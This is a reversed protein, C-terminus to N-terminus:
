TKQCPFSVTRISCIVSSRGLHDGLIPRCAHYSTHSVGTFYFGVVLSSHLFFSFIPSYMLIHCCKIDMSIKKRKIWCSCLLFLLFNQQLTWSSLFSSQYVQINVNFSLNLFCYVICFILSAEVCCSVILVKSEKIAISLFRQINKKKPMKRRYFKINFQTLHNLHLSRCKLTTRVDLHARLLTDLLRLPMVAPIFCSIYELKFHKFSGASICQSSNLLLQRGVNCAEALISFHLVCWQLVTITCHMWKSM